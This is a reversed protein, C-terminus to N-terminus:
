EAANALATIASAMSKVRASDQANTVNKNVHSALTELSARRQQGSQKEAADLANAIAPTRAAALGNGRVLQDLYSRVV